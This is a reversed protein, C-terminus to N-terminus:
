WLNSNPTKLSDTPYQNEAKGAIVKGSRIIPISGLNFYFLIMDWGLTAESIM